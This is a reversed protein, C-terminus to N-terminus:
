EQEEEDGNYIAALFGDNIRPESITFFLETCGVDEKSPNQLTLNIAYNGNPTIVPFYKTENYCYKDGPFVQDNDLPYQTHFVHTKGLYVDLEVDAMTEVNNATGCVTIIDKVNRAPKNSLTVSKTTWGANSGGCDKWQPSYAGVLAVALLMSLAIFATRM